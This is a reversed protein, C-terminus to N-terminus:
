SDGARVTSSHVGCWYGYRGSGANFSLGVKRLKAFENWPKSSGGSDGHGLKLAEVSPQFSQQILGEM